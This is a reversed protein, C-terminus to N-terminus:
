FGKAAGRGLNGVQELMHGLFEEMNAIFEMASSLEQSYTGTEDAIADRSASLQEVMASTMATVHNFQAQRYSSEAAFADSDLKATNQQYKSTVGSILLIAAAVGLLLGVGGLPALFMYLFQSAFFAGIASTVGTTINTATTMNDRSNRVDSNIMGKLTALDAYNLFEEETDDINNIREMIEKEEAESMFEPKGAKYDELRLKSMISKSSAGFFEAMAKQYEQESISGKKHKVMVVIRKVADVASNIAFAVVNVLYGISVDYLLTVAECLGGFIDGNKFNAWISDWRQALTRKVPRSEQLRQFELNNQRIVDFLRNNLSLTKKFLIDDLKQNMQFSQTLANTLTTQVDSSLVMLMMAWADANGMMNYQRLIEGAKGSYMQNLSFTLPPLEIDDPEQKWKPDLKPLGTLESMLMAYPSGEKLMDQSIFSDPIIRSYVSTALNFQQEDSLTDFVAATLPNTANHWKGDVKINIGAQLGNESTASFKVDDADVDLAHALNAAFGAGASIVIKDGSQIPLYGQEYFLSKQDLLTSDVYRQVDTKNSEFYSLLEEGVGAAVMEKFTTTSIKDSESFSWQNKAVWENTEEDYEWKSFTTVGNATSYAPPREPKSTEGTNGAKGALDGTQYNGYGSGVSKNSISTM